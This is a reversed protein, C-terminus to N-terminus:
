GGQCTSKEQTKLYTSLFAGLLLVLVLCGKQVVDVDPHHIIVKERGKKEPKLTEWDAPTSSWGRNSCHSGSNVGLGALLLDFCVFGCRDISISSNHWEKLFVFLLNKSLKPLAIHSVSLFNQTSQVSPFSSILLPTLDALIFTHCHPFFLSGCWSCSFLVVLLLKSLSFFAHAPLYHCYSLLLYISTCSYSSISSATQMVHM